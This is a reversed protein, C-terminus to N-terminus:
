YCLLKMSSESSSHKAENVDDQGVIKLQKSNKILRNWKVQHLKITKYRNQKGKILRVRFFFMLDELDKM